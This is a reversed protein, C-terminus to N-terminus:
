PKDEQWAYYFRPRHTFMLTGMKNDSKRVAVVFPAAFGSVTFEATMQETNWVQGGHEIVDALIEEPVGEAILKERLVDTGEHM